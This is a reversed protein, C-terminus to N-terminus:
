SRRLFSSDRLRWVDVALGAELLFEVLHDLALSEFHVLDGIMEFFEQCLATLLEVLGVLVLEPLLLVQCATHAFSGIVLGFRELIEQVLFLFEAM